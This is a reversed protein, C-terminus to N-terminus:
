KEKKRNLLYEAWYFDEWEDIDAAELPDMEFFLPNSGLRNQRLANMEKTFIYFCSNEHYLPELKQTQILHNPDHNVPKGDVFYFRQKIPTVTMVSDFDDQKLFRQIARTITKSSICPNTSHTQLIVENTAHKLDYEILPQISVEDGCLYEPRMLVKVKGFDQVLEAIETSDTNVIVEDIETCSELTELVWHCAPKGALPRTNKNPVRESHAKMPVLATVKQTIMGGNKM